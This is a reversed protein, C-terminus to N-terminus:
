GVKAEIMKQLAMKFKITIPSLLGLKNYIGHVQSLLEQRTLHAERIVSTKNPKLAARVQLGRKKTSLNVDMSLRIVDEVTDWPM